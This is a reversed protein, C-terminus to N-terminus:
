ENNEGFSVFHEKNIVRSFAVFIATVIIFCNMTRISTFSIAGLNMILWGLIGALFGISLGRYLSNDRNKTGNWCLKVISFLLWFFAGLGLIGTETVMLAYQDHAVNSSLLYSGLGRGIFPHYVWNAVAEKVGTVREALSGGQVFTGTSVFQSVELWLFNIREVINEPLKIRFYIAFIAMLPLLALYKYIALFLIAVAIGVMAVRRLTDALFFIMFFLVVPLPLIYKFSRKEFAIAIMVPVILVLMEAYETVRTDGGLPSYARWQEQGGTMRMYIGYVSVGIACIFALYLTFKLEKEGELCRYLLYFLIFYEVRKGFFFVGTLLTVRGSIVGLLTSIFGAACYILIPIDLPTREFIQEKNIIHRIFSGLLASVIIADEIRLNVDRGPIQAVVIDPSFFVSIVIIPGAIKPQSVLIITM